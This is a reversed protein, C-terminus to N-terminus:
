VDEGLSIGLELGDPNGVLTGVTSCLRPGEALGVDRGLEVGVMEWEGEDEGVDAGEEDGM